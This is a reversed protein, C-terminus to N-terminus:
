REKDLNIFKFTPSPVRVGEVLDVTKYAEMVSSRGDNPKYPIIEAEPAGLGEGIFRQPNELDRQTIEIKM